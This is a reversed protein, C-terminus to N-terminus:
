SRTECDCPADLQGCRLLILEGDERDFHCGVTLSDLFDFAQDALGGQGNILEDDEESGARTRYRAVASRLMRAGIRVDFDEGDGPNLATWGWEEATDIIRYANRWGQDGSLWSGARWAEIPGCPMDEANM